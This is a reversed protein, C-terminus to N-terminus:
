AAEQLRNLLNRAELAVESATLGLPGCGRAVLQDAAAGHLHVGLLTAAEADMDQALLAGVIGALVDGMGASALGPNGSTNIYWRGDPLAIVSGVGKLVTVARYELALRLAAALRDSQVEAVSCGLLSAAEGPHPTLLTPQSRAQLRERLEQQLGPQTLAGADLLLIAPHALAARLAALAHEGHGLGPGAVLVDLPLEDLLAQPTRLMLEPQGPDFAPADAALLGCYVRGAGALLAARGALLAAGVMSADGGLVGVSGYSGKHSNRLRPAPLAPPQEILGGPTDDPSAVGLDSVHVQGAHDPGDLTFLGPKLGLFTLTHDAHVACGLVRGTDACLGSPIDLALVPAPQANIQRVLEAHVGDLPKSLGIGFLGDIVLDYRDLPIEPELRGDAELWAACAAAADPPLRSREGAFVVTVRYWAQKLLRAAVLADGGNNGPGAVVLVSSGSDRLLEGALLAAAQGAREMLGAAGAAQEIARIAAVPYLPTCAAM